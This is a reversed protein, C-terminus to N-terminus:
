DPTGLGTTCQDTLGLGIKELLARFKPHPRLPALVFSTQIGYVSGSREVVARELYEVARDYDGLGVYAQALHFPSVYYSISGNELQQILGRAREVDGARGCVHALQAVWMPDRNSAAVAKEIEAVGKVLNGALFYAWGLTARTRSHAPDVLVASEGEVIAETYYGARILCTILDLRHVLPNLERARRQFAIAEKHRGLGSALRGYLNHTDADSPSLELARKFRDEAGVFDLEAVMKLHGMACHAAALSPDLALAKGAAKAARSHAVASWMGGGEALEIHAEAIKVFALAFSPDRSLSKEFLEIARMYRPTDFQVMLELGKLYLQYAVLDRTPEARVRARESASLQADLARAIQLAVDTQVAFIDTLQRDYTEVWLSQDTEVDILKAVVRLRDGACRVTGDLVASTGLISGIEKLPLQRAKFRMVSTSAIVKLARIKSLHAIVDETIGDALQTHEPDRSLNFFPLVAVSAIAAEPRAEPSSQRRVGARRLEDALKVVSPDPEIGLEARLRSAHEGAHQIAAARDGAADLARMLSAAHKASHPDVAVLKRCTRVRSDADGAEEEEHLLANLAAVYSHALERRHEDLWFGFEVSEALHFGDLLPGSYLNAVATHDHSGIAARVDVLDCRVAAPNLLLGDRTSLIADEGMAGRLVHTALNLLRRASVTDREPWLLLMARERSLPRPSAAALLTLLAVRHRQTPPGSLPIDGIRLSAGGLLQATLM